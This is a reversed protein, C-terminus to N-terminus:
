TAMQPVWLAMAFTDWVYGSIYFASSPVASGSRSMCKRHMYTHFVRPITKMWWSTGGGVLGNTWFERSIVIENTREITTSTPSQGKLLEILLRKLNQVEAHQDILDCIGLM